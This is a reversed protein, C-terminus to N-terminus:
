PPPTIQPLEPQTLFLARAARSFRRVSWRLASVARSAASQRKARRRQDAVYATILAAIEDLLSLEALTHEEGLLPMAHLYWERSERVSTLAYEYLRARDAPSSRAHGDALNACVSGLAGYLQRTVKWMRPDPALRTTVAWGRASAFRALRYPALRWLGDRRVAFPVAIIWTEYAVRM